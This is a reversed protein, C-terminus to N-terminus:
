IVPGLDEAGGFHVVRQGLELAAWRGIPGGGGDDRRLLKNDFVSQLILYRKGICDMSMKHLIGSM